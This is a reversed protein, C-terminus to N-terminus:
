QFDKAMKEIGQPHVYGERINIFIMQTKKNGFPGGAAGMGGKKAESLAFFALMLSFILSLARM